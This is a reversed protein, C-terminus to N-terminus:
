RYERRLMFLVHSTFGLSGRINVVQFVEWGDNQQNELKHLDEEALRSWVGFSPVSRFQLNRYEYTM